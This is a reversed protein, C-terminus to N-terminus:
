FRDGDASPEALIAPFRRFEEAEGRENALESLTLLDLEDEDIEGDLDQGGAIRKAEGLRPRAEDWAARALAPDPLPTAVAFAADFDDDCPPSWLHDSAISVGLMRELIAGAAIATTPDTGAIAALLGPISDAGCATLSPEPLPTPTALARLAAEVADDRGALRLADLRGAIREDLRRLDSLRAKTSTLLAARRACDGPLEELHLVIAEDPM